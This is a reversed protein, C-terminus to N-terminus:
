DSSGSARRARGIARITWMLGFTKSGHEFTRCEEDQDSRSDNAQRRKDGGAGISRRVTAATTTVVADDTMAATVTHDPRAEDAVGAHDTMDVTVTPMQRVDARMDMQAPVHMQVPPVVVVVVRAEPTMSMVEVPAVAVPVVRV